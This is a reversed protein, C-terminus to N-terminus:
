NVILCVVPVTANLAAGTSVNQINFAYTGAAPVVNVVVPIGTGAYGNTSCFVQSAAAASTNTVTMTASLTSAATTLGTVSVTNRFGVATATTTGTATSLISATPINNNVSTLVANAVDQVSSMPSNYYTLPSALAVSPVSFMAAACLALAACATRLIHRM